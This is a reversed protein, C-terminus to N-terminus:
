ECTAFLFATNAFLFLRVRCRRWFLEDFFLLLLWGLLLNWCGSRLSLRLGGRAFGQLVLTGDVVAGNLEIPVNENGQAKECCLDGSFDSRHTQLVCGPLLALLSPLVLGRQAAEVPVVGRPLAVLAPRGRLHVAGFALRPAGPGPSKGVTLGLAAVAAVAASVRGVPVATSVLVSGGATLNFVAGAAAEFRQLLVPRRPAALATSLAVAVAAVAVAAVM